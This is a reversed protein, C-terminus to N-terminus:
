LEVNGGFDIALEVLSIEHEGRACHVVKPQVLKAIDMNHATRPTALNLASERPEMLLSPVLSLHIQLLPSSSTPV